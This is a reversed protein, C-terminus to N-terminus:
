EEKTLKEVIDMFTEFEMHTMTLHEVYSERNPNNIDYVFTGYRNDNFFLLNKFKFTGDYNKLDKFLEWMNTKETVEQFKEPQNVIELVDGEEYDAWGNLWDNKDIIEKVIEKLDMNEGV